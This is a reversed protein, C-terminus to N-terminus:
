KSFVWQIVRKGTPSNVFNYVQRGTNVLGLATDVKKKGRELKSPQATLRSYNQELNLRDNLDRLEKNSLSDLSRSRLSKARLSDESIDDDDVSARKKSSGGKVLGDSGEPRRVGWRMGKIGYHVLELSKSDTDTM